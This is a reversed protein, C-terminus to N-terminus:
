MLLRRFRVRMRALSISGRGVSLKKYDRGNLTQMQRNISFWGKGYGVNIRGGVPERFFATANANWFSEVTQTM